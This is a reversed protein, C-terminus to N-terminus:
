AGIQKKLGLDPVHIVNTGAVVLDEKYDNFRDDSTAFINPKLKNIIQATPVPKNKDPDPAILAYDVCSLSSVMIVRNEESIIPRKTGKREKVRLDSSIAVILIDGLIKCRKLFNLHGIHILDYCGGTLVIIKGEHKNKIESLGKFNIIM